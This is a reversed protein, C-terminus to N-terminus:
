WHSPIKIWTNVLSLGSNPWLKAGRGWKTHCHNPFDLISCFHCFHPSSHWSLETWSLKRGWWTLVLSPWLSVLWLGLIIVVSWDSALCGSRRLCESRNWYEFDGRVHLSKCYNQGPLQTNCTVSVNMWLVHPAPSLLIWLIFNTKHRLTLLLTKYNVHTINM